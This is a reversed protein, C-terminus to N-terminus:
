TYLLISFSVLSDPKFIDSLWFITKNLLEFESRALNNEM